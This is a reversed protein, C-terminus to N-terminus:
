QGNNKEYFYFFLIYTFLLAFFILDNKNRNQNKILPVEFYIHGAENPNLKKVVEGKNNIIASVGKNASRILFTNHEIARFISKAFHQHPGISDGFWGDESINVVLNNNQNSSQILNTFIIEYCILPLIHLKDIILNNQSKGSLFSGHGETLKKFGIQSLFSEFPLFEGFPVLKMKKYEQIIEMQNDVIILSNYFRNMRKDLRNVGFLIFHNKSFNNLFFQRLNQIEEYSYGSFVGEPWVYLTKKDKSPDSYKILKKLRNEIDTQNLGYELKFNPSIVKINIKNDIKRIKKNNLNISHNGYIYFLFFILVITTLTYIKKIYKLKFFIVAPLMFVTIIILNFAFLGLKNLIQIIETSWSFSYAWFNWPFGTLISNRIYDSISLSASLLIISQLNLNLFPGVFFTVISFFLSLFLPIIVLGFPILIKFNEDFTLSNAIWHLGSLYFGFGFATGYLFLNKKYPKKKRYISKSKKKIYILLYFFIPLTFFNVFTINFPQFSLVSLSGILFPILFLTLFRNDLYKSIM